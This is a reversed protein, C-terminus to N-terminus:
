RAKIRSLTEQNIDLYSAIIKSPLRKVYNPQEKLLKEYRKGATLTVLDEIRHNQFFFAYELIKRYFTEWGPIEDLFLFFDTHSISLLESDELAEICEVSPKQQVFSTLATIPTDDFAILRTKEKGDSTSYFSRMCGKQLYCFERCVQGSELLMHHRKIKKFKISLSIKDMDTDTIKALGGILKKFNDTKM